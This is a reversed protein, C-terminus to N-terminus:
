RALRRAAPRALVLAPHPHGAQHRPQEHLGLLGLRRSVGRAASEVVHEVVADPDFIPDIGGPVAGFGHRAAALVARQPMLTAPEDGRPRLRRPTNSRDIGDAPKGRVVFSRPRRQLAMLAAAM